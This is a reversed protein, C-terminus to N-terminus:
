FVMSENLNKNTTTYLYKISYPPSAITIVGNDVVMPVTDFVINPDDMSYATMYYTGSPVKIFMVGGDDSTDDLSPKPLAGYQSDKVFYIPRCKSGLKIEQQKSNM